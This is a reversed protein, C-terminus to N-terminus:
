VPGPQSVWRLPPFPRYVQERRDLFGRWEPAYPRRLEFRVTGDAGADVDEPVIALVGATFLAHVDPHLMICNAGNFRREPAMRRTKARSV